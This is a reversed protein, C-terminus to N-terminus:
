LPDDLLDGLLTEFLTRFSLFSRHTPDLAGSSLRRTNAAVTGLVAAHLLRLRFLTVRDMGHETAIGLRGYLVHVGDVVALADDVYTDTKLRDPIPCTRCLRSKRNGATFNRYCTRNCYCSALTDFFADRAAEEMEESAM